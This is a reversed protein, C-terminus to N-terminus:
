SGATTTTTTTSPSLKNKISSWITGFTVLAIGAALYVLVFTIMNEKSFIKKM